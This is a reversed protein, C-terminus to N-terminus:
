CGARSQRLRQICIGHRDWGQIYGSSLGYYLCDQHVTLSLIFNTGYSSTPTLRKIWNRDVNWGCLKGDKSFYLQDNWFTLAFIPGGRPNFIEACELKSM